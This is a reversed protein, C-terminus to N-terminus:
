MANAEVWCIDLKKTTATQTKHDNTTPSPPVYCLTPVSCM